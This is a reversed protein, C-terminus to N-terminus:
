GACSDDGALPKGAAPNTRRATTRRAVSTTKGAKRKRSKSARSAGEKPTSDTSASAWPATRLVRILDETRSLEKELTAIRRKLGERSEGRPREFVEPGVRRRPQALLGAMMGSLAQQSLQWVRLPKVSLEEAVASKTKKGLWYELILVCARHAREREAQPASEWLGRVPWAAKSPAKFVTRKRGTRARRRPKAPEQAANTTTEDM